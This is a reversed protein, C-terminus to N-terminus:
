KLESASKVSPKLEIREAVFYPDPLTTRGDGSSRRSPRALQVLKRFGPSTKGPRNQVRVAIARESILNERRALGLM